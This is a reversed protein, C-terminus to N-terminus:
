DSFADREDLMIRLQALLEGRTTVGLRRRISAIHHEVTRPSIFITEGIEQYTKGELVLLAVERERASMGNEESDTSESRTAEPASSTPEPPRKTSPRLDRACALLRAMDKREPARASAHGALRAGEWTMGVSALGRAAAEVVAVDVNGALVLVWARGASALTAALHDHDSARVLAAAHPGLDQPREVLIAAQIAAWHLPVSWLPPDGLRELLAWADVLQPGVREADRLRTAAILLEALPMLNYLDIDVHLVSERARHWARLLSAGDDARRALGVELARLWLVDRPVLECDLASAQTIAEYAREPRDRQMAVWARMLLLRPRAAPGGQGGLLAADLISDAVDLDGAHLAALTALAAPSEPLPVTTGSATMMDSAQILSPLAHAAQGSVSHMIGQGMLNVAVALSHVGGASTAAAAMSQAGALDGAGMMAVVALGASSGINEPGHSRYLEASRALMGRQAWAAAAIDIARSQDPPNEQALLADVIRSAGDVDGVAAAAQARRAATQVEDSGAATAEEYLVGARAPETDLAADAAHELTRSVRIDRLGDQALAEAVTDLPLGEEVFTDVLLRQLARVRYPPTTDLLTQRVVPLLRGNPSLWGAARAQEVLDDIEAEDLTPPVHDALDFGVALALLLERVADSTTKLEQGLQDIAEPPNAQGM